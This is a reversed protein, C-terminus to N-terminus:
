KPFSLWKIVIEKKSLAVSTLLILALVISVDPLPAALAILALAAIIYYFFRGPSASHLSSLFNSIGKIGGEENGTELLTIVVLIIAVTIQPSSM